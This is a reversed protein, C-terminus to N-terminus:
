TKKLGDLFGELQRSRLVFLRDPVLRRVSAGGVVALLKSPLELVMPARGRSIGLGARDLTREIDTAVREYGGPKVVVAVHADEWRRLISRVRRVPAVVVLTALVLALVAAYPYGRLVAVIRGAGSPRDAADALFLGAIGIGIPLLVALVLMVLRLWGEDIWDPAPVFGILMTGADPVIVGVLLAVWLLAGLSVGTLLLQKSEPVRGFLMSSAWGLATNLIKGVFRGLFALLPALVAM